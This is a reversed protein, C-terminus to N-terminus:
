TGTGSPRGDGLPQADLGEPAREVGGLVSPEARPELGGRVAEGERPALLGPQGGRRAARPHPRLQVVRGQPQPPEERQRGERLGRTRQWGREGEGQVGDWAVGLRAGGEAAEVCAQRQGLAPVLGDRAVEGPEVFYPAIEGDGPRERLHEPLRERSPREEADGGLTYPQSKSPPPAVGEAEA